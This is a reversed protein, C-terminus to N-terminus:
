DDRRPDGRGATGGSGSASRPRRRGGLRGGGRDRRDRGRRRSRSAGRGRAGCAARRGRPRGPDRLHGDIGGGHQEVSGGHREIAAAAAELAPSRAEPDATAGSEVWLATVSKRQPLEPEPVAEDLSADQALIAQELRRLQQSPEIGLEEVLVRRAERYAALADAQRGSRYLALIQQGRLRERLPHEAVLAELEGALAAHRGAALDAEIREELVAIRLEELRQVEAQAWREYRFDALAPGRWLDLAERHAGAAALQEFRRADIREPDLELAYGGGRTAIADRGLAKRLESVYIQVIKPATEPGAGDWLEEVLRDAAM